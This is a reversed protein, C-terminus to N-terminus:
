APRRKPEELQGLMYAPLPNWGSLDTQWGEAPARTLVKKLNRFALGSLWDKRSLPAFNIGKIVPEHVIPDPNVLVKAKGMRSLVDIDSDTLIKGLGGVAEVDELLATGAAEMVPISRGGAELNTRNVADLSALDGPLYDSSAPAQRIRTSNVVASAVTEFHRLPIRKGNGGAYVDRLTDAIHQRAAFPGKFRLVDRPDKIGPTLADGAAMAVGPRVSDLIEMRPPVVHEKGEVWVAYGGAPNPEVREVVGSKKAVVARNSPAEPLELLGRIAELKTSAMQDANQVAGATHFSSLVMQTMPETISQGSIVGVNVGIEPLRGMEDLGWCRRCVGEATECYIPTRVRVESIGKQELGAVVKSTLPTDRDIGGVPEALYRGRVDASAVPLVRGRKTGCDDATIVYNVTTHLLSKNLAGPEVTSKARDIIGMRAAYLSAWYSAPDLGEAYSRDVPAPFPRRTIDDVIVPAALIQQLNAPSGKGGSVMMAKFANTDPVSEVVLTRIRENAEGYIREFNARRQEDTRAARNAERLRRQADRLIRDREPRLEAVVALDDIGVSLGLEYAAQNGLSKFKDLVAPLAKPHNEALRTFIDGTTKKDLVCGRSRGAEPLVADVILCGVTIWKGDVRVEDNVALEGHEYAEIAEIDTAFSRDVRRGPRTAMWLGTQAEHRPELLFEGSTSLFNRSPLMGRAEDVAKEGIPVHVSMSDGDLDANFGKMVFANLHISKDVSLKPKMALVSHKHLSPARNLLVPRDDMVDELAARAEESRERWKEEGALPGLGHQERLKSLVFPKFIQWAMDEPIAVDDVGLDPDTTITSRGTLEQTKKLLKSQFWGEKNRAGAIQRFIGKLDPRSLPDGFGMVAKAAGYLTERNAEQIRKPLKDFHKGKLRNSVLIVDRYLDNLSSSILTGDDTPYVPRYKPPVIPLHELVLQEPRVGNERFNSLVRLRRNLADLRDARATEVEQRAQDIESDLDIRRLLERVAAGGTLGTPKDTVRGTQPDVFRRGAILDDFTARSMGTIWLIADEFVPNPIPEPLHLHSWKEGKLGGTIYPDFIGGPDPKLDTGRLRTERTVEGASLGLIESDTLPLLRMRTGEKKVDIGLGRLKVELHKATEPIDPPPLAEGLELARFFEDSKQAKVTSMERLNERAGHALLSMATLFDVSQASEGGTKAPIMDATYRGTSRASFKKRVPHDLKLIYGVGTSVAPITRNTEPDHLDEKDRVGADRMVRQVVAVNDDEAFNDFVFPKGTTAAAKGAGAELLQSPNLRSPVGAPNLIVEIPRGESDRLMASDPVIKTIVGKAASRNSIKDGLQAPETTRVLVNFRGGAKIVDAVSGEFDEMWTIAENSFPRVKGRGFVELRADTENVKREVLRLILPDGRVVREGKKVVGDADLKALQEAGFLGPFYALFTQLDHVIAPGKDSDFRYLHESALRRAMSESVVVGDEFNFGKYPLYAVRANLGLALKGDRTFNSDAIIQGEKVADGSEVIPTSDLFSKSSLFFNRYLPVTQRNGKADEIVIDRDRVSRVTGAVPARITQSAEGVVEEFTRNGPARVQVLPPEREVLSVAQEQHKAAMMARAGSISNLFPLLNVSYDFLGKADPLFYDVEGPSVEIIEGQFYVRVRQRKAKIKGDVKEFEGPFAVHSAWMDKMSLRTRKGTRADIADTLLKDGDKKAGLAFHLTTGIESSEPTHIADLFGMHTPNINRQEPTVQNRDSIGGEYMITVKGAGSLMELPNIQTPSQSLRSAQGSLFQHFIREIREPRVVRAVDEPRDALGRRIHSRILGANKAIREAVFDDFSHITKFHLADRDDPKEEGRMVRAVKAAADLLLGGSMKEHARGLTLKTNEPSIETADFYQRLEEVMTDPDPEKKYIARYLKRLDAEPNAVKMRAVLDEGLRAKAEEESVGLVSLIPFLSVNSAHAKLFFQSKEPDFLVRPGVGRGGRALNIQAEIEKNRKVRTYVGPELRMQNTIQQETGGVIFTQRPTLRPMTLIRMRKSRGLVKGEPSVVRFAGYVPVGWTRGSAKAQLQAELDGPSVTDEVWINDVELKAKTTETPLAERLAAVLNEKARQYQSETDFSEIM